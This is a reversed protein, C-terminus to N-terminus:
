HASVPKVLEIARQGQLQGLYGHCLSQGGETKVHLTQTLPHPLVLVDGVTLSALNGVSVDVAALEVRLRAAHGALAENLTTIPETQKGSTAGTTKVLAAMRTPGLHLTISLADDLPFVVRVAGSWPRSHAVPIARTQAPARHFVSADGAPLALVTKIEAICDAFAETCLADVLSSTKISSSSKLLLQAMVDDPQRGDIWVQNEDNVEPSQSLPRWDTSEEGDLAEHAARCSVKPVSCSDQQADDIWAALWKQRAENLLAELTALQRDSWWMLRRANAAGSEQKQLPNM